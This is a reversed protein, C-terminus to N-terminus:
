TYVSEGMMEREYEELEQPTAPCQVFFSRDDDTTVLYETEEDVTEEVLGNGEYVEEFEGGDISRLVKIRINNSM